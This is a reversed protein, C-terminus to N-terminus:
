QKESLCNLLVSVVTCSLLVMGGKGSGTLDELNQSHFTSHLDEIERVCRISSWAPRLETQQM